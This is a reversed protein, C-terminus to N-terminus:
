QALCNQGYPESYRLFTLIFQLSQIVHRIFIFLIYIYIYQDLNCVVKLRYVCEHMDQLFATCVTRSKELGVRAACRAFDMEHRACPGKQLTAFHDVVRTIPTEFVPLELYNMSAEHERSPVYM